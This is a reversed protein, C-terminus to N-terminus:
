AHMSARKPSGSVASACSLRETSSSASAVFFGLCLLLDFRRRETTFRAGALLAVLGAALAGATQLVLKLHPLAYGSGVQSYTLLLALQIDESRQRVPEPQAGELRHTQARTFM